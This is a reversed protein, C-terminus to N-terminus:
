RFDSMDECFARERMISYWEKTLDPDSLVSCKEKLVKIVYEPNLYAAPDASLLCSIRVDEGDAVAHASKIMPRIDTLVEGKKTKKIVEVKDACLAESCRACIQDLDGSTRIRVTYSFWKLDSFQTDTYYAEYVQMEDTLNRNFRDRVEDEPIRETLRLDMLECESETGISLPAAFVIKPKPNFGETYWLPLGTRTVIKSMTRVLDLHSIYQLSGVKRFKIRVTYVPRGNVIQVM